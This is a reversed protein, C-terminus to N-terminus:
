KIAPFDEPKEGSRTWKIIQLTRNARFANWAKITYAMRQETTMRRPNALDRVLYNRLTLAPHGTMLGVGDNLLTWFEDSQAADRRAMLYHLATAPSPPYRLVGGSLRYGVQASNRISPHEELYLLLEDGTPYPYGLGTRVHGNTDLQWAIRLAAAVTTANPEGHITLVDALSRKIGVDITDQTKAPLGRVVVTEITVGSEVVAAMRHQGDLLDGEASVKIAEGNLIWRGDAMSRALSSVANRKLHRNRENSALLREADKPGIREVTTTVVPYESHMASQIDPEAVVMAPDREKRQSKGAEILALVVRRQDSTLDSLRVIRPATM